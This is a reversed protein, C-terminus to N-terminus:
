GNVISIFGDMKLEDENLNEDQIFYFQVDLKFENKFKEQLPNSFKYFSMIFDENYTNEVNTTVMFKFAFPNVFYGTISFGNKELDSMLDMGYLFMQTSARTFRSKLDSLVKKSGSEEGKTFADIVYNVHFYGDLKVNTSKDEIKQLYSKLDKTIVNSM